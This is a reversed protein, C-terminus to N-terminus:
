PTRASGSRSRGRRWNSKCGSRPGRGVFHLRDTGRRRSLMWATRVVSMLAMNAGQGLGDRDGLEATIIVALGHRDAIAALGAIAPRIRRRSPMDSGFYASLPDIVVLRVNGALEIAREL